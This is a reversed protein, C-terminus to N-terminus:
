KTVNDFSNIFFNRPHQLAERDDIENEEADGINEAIQEKRM